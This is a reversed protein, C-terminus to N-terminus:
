DSGATLSMQRIVHNYGDAIAVRGDPLVAVGTPLSIDAADGSGLNTGVRGTGAITSVRTSYISDGPVIKRIRFNASDALYIEGSAGIAMGMQARFRADSGAGDSYGVPADFRGAITDVPNDGSPSIRRLYQTNSDLVYIEGTAAIALASPYAFQAQTGVSSDQTALGGNGAYTTVQRTGAAIKRIRNGFMEAVYLNGSGDIALAMPRNFRASLPDDSDVSGPEQMRGAYTSVFWTPPNNEIRRIVHNDSDAVYIAGDAAIAVGAPFRFSAQSGPANDDSGPAGTGAITSLTNDSDSDIMRILHNNGDAVLIQNSPTAALGLPGSFRASSGPGDAWGASRVSGALPRVSAAWGPEIHPPAPRLPGPPPPQAPPRRHALARELVNQTMRAVRDDVFDVQEPMLAFLWFMSGVAFVTNGGPLNREVTHAVSGNGLDRLVPSEQIVRVDAPTERDPWVRDFEIGLLGPLAEGAVVDTGQYLWHNPDGVVLPFALAMVSDYAIGYLLNEPHPNPPDSFHVTPADRVPDDYSKYCVITRLPVGTISNERYRIHWFAGNSGFYTYSTQGSDLAADVLAREDPHWYEDHGAVVLAGIGSLINPNRSFDTNAAYTVDYGNKELFKLFPYDFWFLQGAGEGIDYPRDFSVEVARGAVGQYLSAGGWANYAQYTNFTAQYLIEAPRGDVVVFPVFRKYPEGDVRNMKVVYLGSLWDTPIQFFFTENWNCEVRNTDPNRPCTEQTSVSYPGGSWVLRAGAGGYYGLRYIEAGVTSPVDSSVKVSIFGGVVQSDTSLYLELQRADAVWGDRWMASGPRQNETRIPNPDDGVGQLLSTTAQANKARGVPNPTLDRCAIFIVPLGVVFAVAHKM